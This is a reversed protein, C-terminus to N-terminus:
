EELVVVAAGTATLPLTVASGTETVDMSLEEGELLEVARKPTYGSRTEIIVERSVGTLEELTLIMARDSEFAYWAIGRPVVVEVPTGLLLREVFSSLDAYSEKEGEDWFPGRVNGDRLISINDRAMASESIGTLATLTRDDLGCAVLGIPIDRAVCDSLAAQERPSFRGTVPLILGDIPTHEALVDLRAFGSIPLGSDRLAGFLRAQDGAIIQARGDVPLRPGCAAFLFGRPRDPRLVEGLVYLRQLGGWDESYAVHGGRRGRHCLPLWTEWGGLWSVGGGNPYDIVSVWDGSQDAAMMWFLDVNQRFMRDMKSIREPGDGGLMEMHFHGIRSNPALAKGLCSLYTPCHFGRGARVNWPDM